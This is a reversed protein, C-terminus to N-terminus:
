IKKNDWFNSILILTKNKWDISEKIHVWVLNWKPTLWKFEYSFLKRWIRQSDTIIKAKKILEISSFFAKMRNHWDNRLSINKLYDDVFVSRRNLWKCIIKKNSDLFTKIRKELSKWRLNSIETKLNIIKTVKRHTM